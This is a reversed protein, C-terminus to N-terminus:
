QEHQGGSEDALSMNYKDCMAAVQVAECILKEAAEKVQKIQSLALDNHKIWYWADSLAAQASLLEDMCEEVEELIVAYGQHPSEFLPFKENANNLEKMVLKQVDDKIANMEM